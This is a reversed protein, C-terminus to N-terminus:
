LLMYKRGFIGNVKGLLRKLNTIFITCPMMSNYTTSKRKQLHKNFNLFSILFQIILLM